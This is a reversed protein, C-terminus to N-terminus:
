KEVFSKTLQKIICLYSASRCNSEVRVFMNCMFGTRTILDQSWQKLRIKRGARSFWSKKIYFCSKPILFAVRYVFSFFGNVMLIKRVFITVFDNEWKRRQEKTSWFSIKELGLLGSEPELSGILFPFFIYGILVKERVKKQASGRCRDQGRRQLTGKGAGFLM